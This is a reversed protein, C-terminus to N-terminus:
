ARLPSRTPRADKKVNARQLQDRMIDRARGFYDLFLAVEADSYRSTLADMAESLGAYHPFIEALRAPDAVVFVRRRDDADRERRVFGARELRDVLGTVGGTTLGTAEALEGATMRGRMSVIDLYELDTGSLGFRTAVAAAFMQGLATSERIVRNLESLMEGRDPQAQM